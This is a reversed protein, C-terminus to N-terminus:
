EPLVQSRRNLTLVTYQLQNAPDGVRADHNASHGLYARPFYLLVSWQDGPLSAEIPLLASARWMSVVAMWSRITMRPQEM